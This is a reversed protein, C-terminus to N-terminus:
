PVVKQQVYGVCLRNPCCKKEEAGDGVWLRVQSPQLVVMGSSDSDGGRGGGGKEEGEDAGSEVAKSGTSAGRKEAAFLKKKTSKGNKNKGNM